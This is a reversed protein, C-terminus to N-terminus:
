SVSVLNELNFTAAAKLSLGTGYDSNYTASVTVIRTRSGSVVLDDGTLVINISEAPVAVVVDKRVNIVTGDIDTLTWTIASPVVATGAEDTFAATVIYTSEEVAAVTLNTAM